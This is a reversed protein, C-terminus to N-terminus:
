YIIKYIINKKGKLLNREADSLYTKDLPSITNLKFNVMDENKWNISNKLLIISDDFYEDDSLLILDFSAGIERIKNDVKKVDTMDKCELGFDYLMINYGGCNYQYQKNWIYETKNRLQLAVKESLFEKLPGFEVGFANYDWYSIFLDVPDRLFTFYFVDNKGTDNLVYSVENKNWRAHCLFMDYSIEYGLAKEWFSSELLNRNFIQDYGLINGGKPPLVVKLNNRIAYRLLINQVSTSACKHTKLYGIKKIPTFNNAKQNMSDYSKSSNSKVNKLPKKYSNNQIM